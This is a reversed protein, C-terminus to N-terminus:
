GSVHNGREYFTEPPLLYLEPGQGVIKAVRQDLWKWEAGNNASQWGALDLHARFQRRIERIVPACDRDASVLIAIEAQHEGNVVAIGWNLLDVSLKSHVQKQQGNRVYPAHGLRSNFLPEVVRIVGHKRRWERRQWQYHKRVHDETPEARYVRVQVLDIAKQSAPALQLEDVIKEGLLWPDFHRDADNCEPSPHRSAYWRTNEYDCFVILRADAMGSVKPPTADGRRDPETEGAPLPCM